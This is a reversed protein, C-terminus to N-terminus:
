KEHMLACSLCFYKQSGRKKSQPDELTENDNSSCSYNEKCQCIADVCTANANACTENNWCFAGLMPACYTENVKINNSRCECQKTSSCKAHRIDDCDGDNYCFLGIKASIKEWLKDHLDM